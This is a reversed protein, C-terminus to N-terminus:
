VMSVSVAHLDYIAPPHGENIVYKSMDLNNLPFDVKVDLKDRWFRNYSFRKLHIILIKPLSWLDFKKTAQRHEKCCPCYWLDDAGLKEKNLFLKICDDLTISKKEAFKRQISEHLEIDESKAQDFYKKKMKPYWDLAVYNRPSLKLPEGDDKLHEIEASGYSNVTCLTFLCPMCVDSSQNNASREANDDDTKLCENMDEVKGEEKVQEEEGDLKKVDIEELMGKEEDSVYVFRRMKSLASEYFNQYTTSDPKISVFFPTGFLNATASYSGTSRKERLYVPVTISDDCNDPREYIFIDDRDLINSLSETLQFIKHFRHNYVDAVLVKECSITTEKSLAKVLDKVSGRKPVTLKYKTPLALPDEPVFVVEIYREKKLPLPLSLYCFPDFTVSVKECEPCILTSKFQGHFFDVIISDNRQRHAQWLEQAVFHDPRGEADKIEIYPKKKIRNLDEHLGDLLFAMLEQSDQQQYGSFQPAFRGVSTKFQRPSIVSYKGSWMQHMLGAYANAIEGRMGLLNEMNLETKYCDNVFYKTLSVCNSLCQLASNMFCTNGLNTLGCLGPSSPSERANYENCYGSYSSYSSTERFTKEVPSTSLPSSAFTWSKPTERSWTGDDNKEEIVIVQGNYLGCDQISQEKSTLLEYTNSMYKNWIRTEAEVSIRFVERMAVEVYSIVDARSFSRVQFSDMDNNHCLKLEVLYVEVKCHKVFMGHEVVNRAIAPQGEIVGYCNVLKEWAETPLLVYDLEDILHSKLMGPTDGKFLGSNDIPGPHISEIGAKDAEWSEFGVYKKWQKFWKSDILYWTEGKSLPVQLLEKLSDRQQELTLKGNSNLDKEHQEHNGGDGVAM